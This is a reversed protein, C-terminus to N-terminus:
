HELWRSLGSEMNDLAEKQHRTVRQTREITDYIGETQERVGIAFDIGPDPVEETMEIIRECKELAEGLDFKRDSDDAANLTGKGKGQGNKQPKCKPCDPVPFQPGTWTHRLGCDKCTTAWRGM